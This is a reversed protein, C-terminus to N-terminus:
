CRSIAKREERHNQSSLRLHECTKVRKKLRVCNTCLKQKFGNKERPPTIIEIARAGPRSGKLM